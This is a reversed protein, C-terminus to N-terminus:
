VGVITPKQGNRVLFDQMHYKTFTLDDDLIKYSISNIGKVHAYMLGEWIYPFAKFTGLNMVAMVSSAAKSLEINLEMMNANSEFNIIVDKGGLCVVCKYQLCMMDGMLDKKMRVINTPLIINPDMDAPFLNDTPEGSLWCQNEGLLSLVKDSRMKPHWNELM